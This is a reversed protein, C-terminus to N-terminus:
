KKKRKGSTKGSGFDIGKMMKVIMGLVAVTVIVPIMSNILGSYETQTISITGVYCDKEVYTANLVKITIEASGNAVFDGPYFSNEPYVNKDNKAAVTKNSTLNTTGDNISVLFYSTANTVSDTYPAVTTNIIWNTSSDLPLYKPDVVSFRFEYSSADGTDYLTTLTAASGIPIALLVIFLGILATFMKKKM